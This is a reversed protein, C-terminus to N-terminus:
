RRPRVKPVRELVRVPQLNHNARLITKELPENAERTAAGISFSLPAQGLAAMKLRKVVRQATAPEPDNLLLLFEEDGMRVVADEARAHRMLFRSVRRLASEGAEYGYRDSYQRFHDIFLFICSWGHEEQLAKREFDGLYLPNFSGTLPDRLNRDDVVQTGRKERCDTIDILIGHYLIEGTRADIRPYSLDLMRRPQDYPKVPLDFERVTRPEHPQRIFFDLDLLVRTNQTQLDEISSAGILDLFVPNADLLDGRSNIVYIAIRLNRVLERLNEPDRLTHFSGPL